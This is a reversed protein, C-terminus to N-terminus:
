DKEPSSKAAAVATEIQEITKGLFSGWGKEDVLRRLDPLASAANEEMKALAEAYEPQAPGSSEVYKILPRVLEEDSAWLRPEMQILLPLAIHRHDTSTKVINSLVKAVSTKAFDFQRLQECWYTQEDVNSNEMAQILAGQWETPAGSPDQQYWHSLVVAAVNRLSHKKEASAIAVIAKSLQGFSPSEHVTEISTNALMQLIPATSKPKSLSISEALFSIVDNLLRKLSDANMGDTTDLAALILKAAELERSGVGLTSVATFLASVKEPSRERRLEAAYEAFTRGQYTPEEFPAASISKASRQEFTETARPQDRPEADTTTKAKTAALRQKIHPM